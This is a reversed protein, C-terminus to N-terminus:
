KALRLVADALKASDHRFFDGEHALRAHVVRVGLAALASTTPWSPRRAAPGTSPPSIRELGAHRQRARRRDHGRRRPPLPRESPRGGLPRRDRGAPDHRQLRLGRPGAHAQAGRARRPDLLNPVISTYVSGPGLVVLDAASIAELAAPMARPRGPELWVRLPLRESATISSEGAVREGGQLEAHLTVSQLTSPLVRGRVNLVTTSEQVAREFDGTVDALAAVFLNGFSHGQLGGDEPFRYQFLRSMLSEDDALAVLCSRIDGPPLVGLGSRLLGSSGGDDAVTVVATLNSSHQKLGSLLVSLGTGGGLAVIRPGRALRAGSRLAVVGPEGAPRAFRYLSRAGLVLVVLGAAFCAAVLAAAFWVHGTIWTGGVDHRRGSSVLIGVALWGALGVLAGGACVALVRRKMGLGPYLWQLRTPRSWRPTM